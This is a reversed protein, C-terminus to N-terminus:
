SFMFIFRERHISTRGYMKRAFLSHKIDSGSTIICDNSITSKSIRAGHSIQVNEGIYSDEILTAMLLHSNKGIITVTSTYKTKVQQNIQEVYEAQKKTNSRDYAIRVISEFDLDVVCTTARGGTEVGPSIIVTGNGFSSTTTTTPGTIIGCGIIRVGEHIFIKRMLITDRIEVNHHQISCDQFTSRLLHINNNNDKNKEVLFILNTGIFTCQTISNFDVKSTATSSVNSTEWGIKPPIGKNGNKEFEVLEQQTLNRIQISSSNMKNNVDSITKQISSTSSSNSLYDLVSQITPHPPM